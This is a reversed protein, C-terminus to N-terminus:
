KKRGKSKDKLQEMLKAVPGPISREGSEYRQASRSIVGLYEAIKSYSLGAAARIAAFEEKSM